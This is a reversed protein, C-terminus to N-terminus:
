IRVNAYVKFSPNLNNTYLASLPSYNRIKFGPEAKTRYKAMQILIPYKM